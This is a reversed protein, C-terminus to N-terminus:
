DKTSKKKKKSDKKKSDKKKKAHQKKDSKKEDAKKENSKKKDSGKKEPKKRADEAPVQQASDQERQEDSEERAAGAEPLVVVAGQEPAADVVVEDIESTLADAVREVTLTAGDEALRVLASAARVRATTRRGLVDARAGELLARLSKEAVSRGRPASRDLRDLEGAVGAAADRVQEDRVTDILAAVVGASREVAPARQDLVVLMEFSTGYSVTEVRVPEATRGRLVLRADPTPLWAILAAITAVSGVLREYAALGLREDEHLTVRIAIEHM